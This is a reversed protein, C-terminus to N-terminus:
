RAARRRAVQEAYWRGYSASDHVTLYGKMRYHGLGCLEACAIEYAGPEEVRFTYTTTLGPVADRKMRFAPVFFSHIVDQSRLMLTITVGAPVHLQNITTIDDGTDFKGDEGAYRVDWQYQRPRVEVDMGAHPTTISAGSMRAWVDSSLIALYMLVMFSASALAVEVWTRGNSYRARVSRKARYRILVWGLLAFVVVLLGSTIWFILSFLHDVDGAIATARPPLLGDVQAIARSRVTAFSVLLAAVPPVISGARYRFRISWTHIGQETM